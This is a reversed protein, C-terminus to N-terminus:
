FKYFNIFFNSSPQDKCKEIDIKIGEAKSERDVKAKDEAEKKAKEDNEKAEELLSKPQEVRQTLSLQQSQENLAVSPSKAKNADGEFPEEDDGEDEDELKNKMM